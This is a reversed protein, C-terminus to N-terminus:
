LITSITDLQVTISRSQKNLKYTVTKRNFCIGPRASTETSRFTAAVYTIEKKKKVQGCNVHCFCM